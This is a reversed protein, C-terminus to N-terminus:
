LGTDSGISVWNVLAYVASPPSSNNKKHKDRWFRAGYQYVHGFKTVMIDARTRAGLPRVGDAPM